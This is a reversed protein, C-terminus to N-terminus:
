FCWDMLYCPYGKDSRPILITERIINKERFLDILGLSSEDKAELDPIIGYEALKVSTIKGISAIKIAALVRIDCHLFFLRNFFYQVAYRSTFILYNFESIKQIVQDLEEYSDPPNLKILPSHGIDGLHGYKEVSTGTVLVRPVSNKILHNLKVTDGTIVLLPSHFTNTKKLIEYLTGTIIRQEPLSINEILAVPTNTPRGAEILKNIIIHLHEKM